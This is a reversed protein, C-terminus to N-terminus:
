KLLFFTLLVTMVGSLISVLRVGLPTLGFIKVPIISLYIYLPSQYNAYSRFYIPFSVGYQDQGRLGLSYADYGISAEDLYITPPAQGIWIIRIVLALVIIFLFVIKNFM